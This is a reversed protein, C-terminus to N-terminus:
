VVAPWYTDDNDYRSALRKVTWGWAAHAKVCKRSQVSVAPIAPLIPKKPLSSGSTRGPPCPPSPVTACRTWRQISTVGECNGCSASPRLM